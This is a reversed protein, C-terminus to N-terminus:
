LAGFTESAQLQQREAQVQELEARVGTLETELEDIRQDKAKEPDTM